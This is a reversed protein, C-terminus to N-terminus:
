AQDCPRGKVNEGVGSLPSVWSFPVQIKRDFNEACDEGVGDPLLKFDWEGNLNLWDKRERDPRPFEPKPIM